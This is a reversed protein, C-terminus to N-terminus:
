CNPQWPLRSCFFSAKSVECPFTTPKISKLMMIHQETENFFTGLSCISHSLPTVGALEGHLTLMENVGEYVAAATTTESVTVVHLIAGPTKWYLDDLPHDHLGGTRRCSRMPCNTLSSSLM